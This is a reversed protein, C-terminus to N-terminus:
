LVVLAHARPANGLVRLHALPRHSLAEFVTSRLAEIDRLLTFIAHRHPSSATNFLPLRPLPHSCLGVSDAPRPYGDDSHLPLGSNYAYALIKIITYFQRSHATTDFCEGDGGSFSDTTIVGTWKAVRGLLSRDKEPGQFLCKSRAALAEILGRLLTLLCEFDRTRLPQVLSTISKRTWASASGPEGLVELTVKAFCQPIILGAYSEPALRTWENCLEVLYSPHMLHTMPPPPIGYRPSRILSTLLSRFSIKFDTYLGHILAVRLLRLMLM